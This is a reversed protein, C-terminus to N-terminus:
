SVQDRNVLRVQRDPAAYEHYWDDLFTPLEEASLDPPIALGPEPRSRGEGKRYVRWGQAERVLLLTFRGYIDFELREAM